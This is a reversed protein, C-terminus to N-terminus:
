VVRKDERSRVDVQGSKEEEEGVVCIYNFQELQGNRVKKNLTQNSIDLEVKYGELVLRKQVKEAYANFKESVTCVIAQRPSLWFPWKGATHETLIAILREVSGLIARHIIVPRAYGAKVSHEHWVFAEDDWEDKNYVDKSLEESKKTDKEKEVTSHTVNEDTKFQLNFRIPLQFDLQITGCQHQRKLADYLKIDIKPGYFAGDGPNIKWPKGFKNLAEELAKEAEDWLKTTGLAKEPRTSLFLEYHFGFVNYIYDLFDLSNM